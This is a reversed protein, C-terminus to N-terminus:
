SRIRLVRVAWCGRPPSLKNFLFPHTSCGAAAADGAYWPSASSWGIAGVLGRLVLGCAPTGVPAGKRAPTPQPMHGEPPPAPGRPCRRRVASGV